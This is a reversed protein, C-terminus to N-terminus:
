AGDHFERADRLRMARQWRICRICATYQFAMLTVDLMDAAERHPANGREREFDHGDDAHREVVGAVNEIGVQGGLRQEQQESEAPEGEGDHRKQQHFAVMMGRVDLPVGTPQQREREDRLHRVAQKQRVVEVHQEGQEDAQSNQVQVVSHFAAASEPKSGCRQHRGARQAVPPMM